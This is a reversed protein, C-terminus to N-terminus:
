FEEDPPALKRASSAAWAAVDEGIVSGSVDGDGAPSPNGRLEDIERDV